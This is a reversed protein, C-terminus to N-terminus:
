PKIESVFKYRGSGVEFVVKDGDQRVFEVGEANAVPKGSETIGEPNVTPV